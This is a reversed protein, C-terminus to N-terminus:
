QTAVLTVNAISGGAAGVGPGSPNVILNQNKDIAFIGGANSNPPGFSITGTFPSGDSWKASIAAVTSGLPANAAITPNAPTLVISLSPTSASPTFVVDVFYNTQLFGLTPFRSGTQYVGNGGVASAAPANLPGSTVTQALGKPTSAFLGNSTYYAAVYTTNAKIPIPTSFNAQQWGPLPGSDAELRVLALRLGSASYLAVIYGNPNKAGRFFRIGSVTGAQASWFKVGLTVATTDSNVVTAPIANTFLSISSQAFCPPGYVLLACMLVAARIM